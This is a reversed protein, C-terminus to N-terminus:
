PGVVVKDFTTSRQTVRFGVREYLTGAGTTNASDVGLAAHDLDADLYAGMAATLLAGGIGRARHEPRTGLLWVWGERRGRAEAEQPYVASILYGAVVGTARHHVLFSLDPRFGPDGLVDHAWAEETRPRSGWHGAFAANHCQRVEEARDAVWGAVTYADAVPAPVIPDALPRIMEFWHRAVEFGRSRLAVRGAEDTDKNHARVIGPTGPARVSDLMSAAAEEIWRLLAGEVEPRVGPRVALGTYAVTDNPGPRLAFSAWAAAGHGDFGAMSCTAPDGSPDSLEHRMDDVAMVEGISREESWANYLAALTPADDLTAPRWAVGPLTPLHSAPDM